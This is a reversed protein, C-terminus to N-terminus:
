LKNDNEKSLILPTRKVDTKNVLSATVVSFQLKVFRLIM